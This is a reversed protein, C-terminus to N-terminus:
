PDLNMGDPVMSQLSNIWYSEKRRRHVVDERHIKEIIIIQLDEMSHGVSNFHAAVPKEERHNKIDSSHGNLRIHPPNETEGVYQKKCQSCQILYIMNRTKCTATALVRFMEGTVTSEFM